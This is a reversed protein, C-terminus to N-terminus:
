ESHVFRFDLGILTPDPIVVIGMYLHYALTTMPISWMCGVASCIYMYRNVCQIMTCDKLIGLLHEGGGLTIVNSVVSTVYM